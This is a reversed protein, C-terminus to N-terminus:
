GREVLSDSDWDTRFGLLYAPRVKEAALPPGDQVAFCGMCAALCERRSGYSDTMEDSHREPTGIM